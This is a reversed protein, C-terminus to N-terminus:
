LQSRCFGAFVKSGACVCYNKMVSATLLTDVHTDALHLVEFGDVCRAVGVVVVDIRALIVRVVPRTRPVPSILISSHHHDGSNWRRCDQFM